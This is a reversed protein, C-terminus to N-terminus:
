LIAIETLGISSDSIIHIFSSFQLNYYDAVLITFSMTFQTWPNTNSTFNTVVSYNNISATIQHTPSYFGAVNNNYRPAAYFSLTYTGPNILISQYVLIPQNITSQFILFQPSPCILFNYIGGTGNGISLIQGTLLTASTWGFIGNPVNSSNTTYITTNFTSNIVLSTTTINIPRANVFVSLGTSGTQYASDAVVELTQTKNMMNNDLQIKNGFLNKCAVGFVNGSFVNNGVGIWTNGNYSYAISNGGGV